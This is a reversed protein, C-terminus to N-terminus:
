HKKQPNRLIQIKKKRNKIEVERRTGGFEGDLVWDIPEEPFFNISSTRLKHVYENPEEKLFMYNIINTFDLPTKPTRILLVEFEGDNLAVDQTVLGKFGGVSVTNTVMGFIFEGELEVLDCKVRMYYSKISTLSKMGELMYAQHGLVNKFDQPTLYAVETFAGFAAIYVFHREKCFCGIDVSYPKGYVIARAAALMDRSIKLSSAFDNTSGAPIYGLRPIRELKMLGNITENLTGDGGSCVVLEMGNGYREVADMADGPGQTIHVLLEYGAKAFIDLIDMLKNKIQAKGSRPNFVFLMKKM